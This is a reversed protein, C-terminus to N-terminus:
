MMNTQLHYYPPNNRYREIAMRLVEEIFDGYDLGILEAVSPVCDGINISPNPNLELVYLNNDKDVRVEVRGYDHCDLINYTDLAIESILSELKKTVGKPPRQVTIYKKYLDTSGFKAEYPYIHWMNKPMKDFVSRSLPLVRLDNEDSGIISIDYEDGEIYEEVLAPSGLAVVVRELQAYLQEKDSVVSDNTIGISNDSNAPKVILPYHLDNRLTDDLSYLYDWAPTPINHYALLKKVRIKDICLGLTFPNSGTYPIRLADLIAVAHPELLSSGNIRECVNFVIDIESSRLENFVKPLDNFDFFTTRYGRERLMQEINAGVSMLTNEVASEGSAADYVNCAIGVHLSRLDKRARRLTKEIKSSALLQQTNLTSFSFRNKRTTKGISSTPHFRAVDFTVYRLAARLNDSADLANTGSVVVWGLFDYGEPPVLVPDGIDKFVHLERVWSQKKMTDDIRLKFVIGSYEPLFYSGALYAMPEEPKKIKEVHIGLAIKAAYAILDVGWAAHVFSHVEDGGMRLNVEIPVPGHSTLKAEFHICGNQVGLLELTQEAMDILAQQGDEPLSSPIAQGAEVFFPERTQFNDSLSFFKLKGNQVLMDIDVEDGDIYEEVFIDAGDHLASEVSLSLNKKIYAYADHLEVETAVKMVYASSAGFAPKIVLPYSLERGVRAVDAASALM